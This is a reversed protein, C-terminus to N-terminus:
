SRPLACDLRRLTDPDQLAQLLLEQHAFSGVATTWAAADLGRVMLVATGVTGDLRRLVFTETLVGPLSGGKAGLGLAGDPVPPWQLHRRAAQAGPRNPDDAAVSLATAVRALGAATATATGDAWSLQTDLPPTPLARVRDREVTDGAFRQAAAREAAGDGAPRGDLLAIQSGLFSPLVVAASPDSAATPSPTTPADSAAVVARLADDGLRDRLLDAAANDSFRIMVAALNDITVTAAPDAAFRGTPDLAIGLETLAAPHAGGDLGPLYWQEWEGVTISQQPDLAGTDVAQAYAALQVIKSASAAPQGDIARHALVDGRGDDVLLAVQDSHAALYAIWGDATAVDAAPAPACDSPGVASSEAVLSGTAASPTAGSCAAVVLAGAVVVGGLRVRRGLSTGGVRSM